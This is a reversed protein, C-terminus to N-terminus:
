ALLRRVVEPWSINLEQYRRRGNRGWEAAQGPDAWVRDLAEALAEPNPKAVLGCSEHRVFELPGGSDACTIVPKSSLMAELTVYGLDEECPPYVVARAQAYGRRKEEESIEGLWRVRDDVGLKQALAKLEDAYAPADAKGAFWLRVPHRTCALARLVLEQRKVHTLRSPYYLYDKAPATYFTEANPPPHYLPTSKIGNYRELRGAVTNSNTFIARAEAALRADAQYIADRVLHGDPCLHLDSYPGEWLEYAQRHQHLIWVVKAPHPILYAPFKLGVVRDVAQGCARTIDLLRCALIQEPIREAPAANFPIAVIEAEHGAALLANQLGEAHREAGGRVFPVQVTTILV